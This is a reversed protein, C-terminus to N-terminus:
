SGYKSFDRDPFLLTLLDTMNVTFLFLIIYIFAIVIIVRYLSWIDKLKKIVDCSSEKKKHYGYLMSKLANIYQVKDYVDAIFISRQLNTKIHHCYTILTIIFFFLTMYSLIILACKAQSAAQLNKPEDLFIKDMMLVFIASQLTFLLGAITLFHSRLEGIKNEYNLWLTLPDLQSRAENVTLTQGGLATGNLGAIAAQAETADPMEVFGFGRSRGTERDTIIQTRNVIGHPEFLQKLEEETTTFALNAVCIRM